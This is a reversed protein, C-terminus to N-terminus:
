PIGFEQKVKDKDLTQAGLSGGGVSIGDAQNPNDFHHYSTVFRLNIFGWGRSRGTYVVSVWHSSAELHDRLAEPNTVQFTGFGAFTVTNGAEWSIYNTRNLNVYVFEPPTTQSTRIEYWDYTSPDAKIEQLSSCLSFMLAALVQKQILAGRTNMTLLMSAM